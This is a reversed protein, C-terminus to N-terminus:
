IPEVGTISHHPDGTALCAVVHGGSGGRDLYQGDSGVAPWGPWLELVGGGGVCRQALSLPQWWPCRWRSPLGWWPSHKQPCHRFGYGCHGEEEGSVTLCKHRSEIIVKTIHALTSHSALEDM